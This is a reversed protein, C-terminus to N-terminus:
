ALWTLASGAGGLFFILFINVNDLQRRGDRWRAKGCGLFRKLLSESIPGFREFNLSPADRPASHLAALQWFMSISDLPQDDHDHSKEFTRDGRQDEREREWSGAGLEWWASEGGGDGAREIEGSGLSGGGAVGGGFFM